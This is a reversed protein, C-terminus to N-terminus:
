GAYGATKLVEQIHVGVGGRRKSEDAAEMFAYIELTERHDVPSQRTKFFTAVQEGLADYGEFSGLIMNGDTGFVTGGYEHKGNRTGRFTGVAKETWNGIVIDTDGTQFRTVLDCGPGMVSYLIEVGHIGYWFLDPHHAELTAPSFTDAGLVKGIKNGPRVAQVNKLYRLASASFVPVSHEAAERYITVVDKLSAAIPKDIFVPKRAAFVERAQALHPRGDNTEVLIVDCNQAVKKASDVIEVGLQKVENTFGPVRDISSPIDSSGAPFASVVRFGSAAPIPNTANFMKVFAPAHSTDLGIIGVRIVDDKFGSSISFPVAASAM